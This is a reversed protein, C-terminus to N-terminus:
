SSFSQIKLIFPDDSYFFTQYGNREIGITEFHCGKGAIVVSRKGKGTNLHVNLDDTTLRM